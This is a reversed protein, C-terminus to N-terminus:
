RLFLILSAVVTHALQDKRFQVLFKLKIMCVFPIRVVLRRDQCIVWVFEGQIKLYLLIVLDRGSSWIIFNDIFLSFMRSHPSQQRPPCCLLISLIRYFPYTGLGQYLFQLVQFYLSQHLGDYTCCPEFRGSYQSSDPLSATTWVWTSFWWSVSIHLVRLFYIIIIIIIIIIAIIIIQDVCGFRSYCSVFFDLCPMSQSYFLIYYPEEFSSVVAELDVFYWVIDHFKDLFIHFGQPHFQSCYSLSLRVSFRSFYIGLLHVIVVVIQLLLSAVNDPFTCDFVFKAFQLFLDIMEHVHVFDFLRCFFCM